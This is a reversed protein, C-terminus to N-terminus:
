WVWMCKYPLLRSGLRDYEMQSIWSDNAGKLKGFVSGGKWIVVQPDLERPPAGIMIEKAFTPKMEKLREELFANFGPIQAGGGVLMIGGMFDRTKKEDSQSGHSISTLIAADLPISALVRDRDEALSIKEIIPDVAAVPPGTGQNSPQGGPQPTSNEADPVPSGAPSSRMTMETDDHLLRAPSNGLQRSAFSMSGTGNTAEVNVDVSASEVKREPKYGLAQYVELQANSLPDNPSGDYLDYSREILRRRGQLKESHDFITPHFYGMPALIVEDYTKFTYKRTDQGPARLHFEYLQVSIEAENMTCFKQKLEEALLFDYRRKLNIDAYPFHDYLLMKVFTETVDAGGYKLNIRSNELCMGEEVCCISTKQAGIDVVCASSYGAGFTAALSEQILCVRAFGFERLFMELGSIVYRREYLDPIVFVCSYQAWAKKSKIGLQNKIAEELITAIAEDLLKRQDYDRENYWGNQLPWSLKYRPTSYDPIRIAAHGTFFDPALNPDSPLETWETRHPDNHESIREPPTRRNYNVVLEKSSPLVRRKNTRMRSKLETSMSTFQQAFEKGFAEESDLPEGNGSKLRKPKPEGGQGDCENTTSKRAIAMPITKPLADSALGIRLNQSGPHIVIVKSGPQEEVSGEAEEVATVDEMDVDGEAMSVDNGNSHALARDRDKAIKALRNRNEDSQLRFVLIQDDRKLYETYYNKQNIASIHPWATLSMDNDTRELGEEKLLAKGSKKGVM